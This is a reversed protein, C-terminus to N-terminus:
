KIMKQSRSNSVVYLSVLNVVVLFVFTVGRLVLLITVKDKLNDHKRMIETLDETSIVWFYGLPNVCTKSTPSWLVKVILLLHCRCWWSSQFRQTYRSQVLKQHTNKLTHQLLSM